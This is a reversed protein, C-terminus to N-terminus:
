SGSEGVMKVEHGGIVLGSAVLVLNKVVFEGEITLLFLNGNTFFLPPALFISVITGAMQFWLLFLTFRLAIKFLLGLGILIELAGVAMLFAPAPFFFYTTELLFAVPSVGFVKLAGFWIFVVALSVRLVPISWARMKTIFITDLKNFM